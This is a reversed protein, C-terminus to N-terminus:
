KSLLLSKFWLITGDLEYAQVFADIICLVQAQRVTSPMSRGDVQFCAMMSCSLMCYYFTVIELSARPQCFNAGEFWTWCFMLDAGLHM